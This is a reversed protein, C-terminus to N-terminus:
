PGYWAARSSGGLAWAHFAAHRARPGQRRLVVPGHARSTGAGAKERRARRRLRSACPRGPWWSGHVAVMAPSTEGSGILALM